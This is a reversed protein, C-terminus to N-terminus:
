NRGGERGGEREREPKVSSVWSVWTVGGDRRGSGAWVGGGRGGLCMAHATAPMVESALRRMWCTRVSACFYRNWYLSSMEGSCRTWIM